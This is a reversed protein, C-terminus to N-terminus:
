WTGDSRGVSIENHRKRTACSANCWAAFYLAALLVSARVKDGCHTIDRNIALSRTCASVQVQRPGAGKDLDHSFRRQRVQHDHDAGDNFGYNHENPHGVGHRRMPM